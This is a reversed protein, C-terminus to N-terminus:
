WMRDGGRPPGTRGSTRSPAALDSLGQRPCTDHLPLWVPDAASSRAALVATAVPVALTRAAPALVQRAHAERGPTLFAFLVPTPRGAAGLLEAYGPLKGALRNLRETGRDYELLFPVQRGAQVWVGYGDPRVIEGWEAACRRESWWVALECGPQTRATRVLGTFLGNVGVLHDLRQNDRLALAKDRRWGLKDITVGREAGLVAAGAEDLVWHFPASGTKTLPRFRDLVRRQYLQALRLETRRQGSVVLDAVQWTTLVRHEALTRILLRDRDTLTSALSLLLQDDVRPRVVGPRALPPNM